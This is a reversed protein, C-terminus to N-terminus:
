AAAQRNVSATAIATLKEDTAKEEELISKLLKAVDNHRLQEAWAVLTGYRAIEYHEAAQAVGIIGADRVEDSGANEMTEEAEDILGEIAECEESEPEEELLQFVQDLREIQSRTEEAHQELATRLDRSGAKKAMKPLAEALQQEAYYIDQLTHVFLEDLSKM